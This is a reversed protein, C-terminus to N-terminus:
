HTPGSVFKCQSFSCDFVVVTYDYFFFVHQKIQMLFPSKHANKDINM